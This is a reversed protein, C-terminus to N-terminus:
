ELLSDVLSKTRHEGCPVLDWVPGREGLTEEALLRAVTRGAQGTQMAWVIEFARGHFPGRMMAPFRDDCQADELVAGVPSIRSTPFTCVLRSEAAKFSCGWCQSVNNPMEDM